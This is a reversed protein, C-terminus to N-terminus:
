KEVFQLFRKVNLYFGNKKWTIFVVTGEGAQGFLNMDLLILKHSRNQATVKKVLIRNV